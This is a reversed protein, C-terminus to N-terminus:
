QHRFYGDCVKKTRAVQVTEIVIKSKVSKFRKRLAKLRRDFDVRSFFVAIKNNRLPLYKEVPDEDVDKVFCVSCPIGAEVLAKAILVAYTSKGSIAHGIIKINVDHYSM